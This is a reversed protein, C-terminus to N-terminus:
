NIEFQESSETITNHFNSRETLQSASILEGDNIDSFDDKNLVAKVLYPGSVGPEHTLDGSLSPHAGTEDSTEFLHSVKDNGYMDCLRALEQARYILM